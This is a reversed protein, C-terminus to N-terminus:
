WYALLLLMQSLSMPHPHKGGTLRWPWLHMLAELQPLARAKHLKPARPESAVDVIYIRSSILCPLVLKSRSKTSDGFCSSCTNWGTHHLEDKLYPMPLRHIVQFLFSLTHSRERKPRNTAPLVADAANWGQGPDWPLSDKHM